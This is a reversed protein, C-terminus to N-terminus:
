NYHGCENQMKSEYSILIHMDMCQKFIKITMCFDFKGNGLGLQQCVVNADLIDWTDDCVTGWAGSDCVEVRGELDTRGDVLRVDGQTCGVCLSLAYIIWAYTCETPVTFNCNNCM